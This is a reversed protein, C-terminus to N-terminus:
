RKEVLKKWISDKYISYTIFIYCIKINEYLLYNQMHM